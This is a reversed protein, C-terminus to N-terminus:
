ELYTEIFRPDNLVVTPHGVAIVRGANMVMVIDSIQRVAEIDHEVVIICKGERKQGEILALMQQIMNPALGSVPEDFLIATAGSAICCAFTLLKQQGYSLEGARTGCVERLGVTALIGIAADQNRKEQEAVGFRTVAWQLAEGRQYPRALLVNQLVSLQTILRMDQFTRAVGLRAVQYPHLQTINRAGFLCHGATPRRVGSLIDLLTTKGAGNPGILATVGNQPFEVSVDVLARTGDFSKSLHSCKFM